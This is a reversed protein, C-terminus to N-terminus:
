KVPNKWICAKKILPAKKEAWGSRQKVKEHISKWINSLHQKVCISM